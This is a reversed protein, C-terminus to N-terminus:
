KKDSPASQGGHHPQGPSSYGGQTGRNGQQTQQTSQQKKDTSTGKNMGQNPSQQKSQNM